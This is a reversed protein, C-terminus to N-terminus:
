DVKAETLFLTFNFEIGHVIETKNIDERGVLVAGYGLQAGFDLTWIRRFRVSPGIRIFGLSFFQAKESGLTFTSWNLGILYISIGLPSFRYYGVDTPHDANWYEFAFFDITSGAIYTNLAIDSLTIEDSGGLPFFGLAPLSQISWILPYDYSYIINPLIIFIVIIFVYFKLDKKLKGGSQNNLTKQM